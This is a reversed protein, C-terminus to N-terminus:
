YVEATTGAPASVSFAISQDAYLLAPTPGSVVGLTQVTGLKDRGYVTVSGAGTVRVRMILNTVPSWGDPTKAAFVAGSEPDITVPVVSGPTKKPATYVAAGDSVYRDAIASDVTLTSGVDQLAGAHFKPRTFQITVTPM